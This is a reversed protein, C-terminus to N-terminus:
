WKLILTLTSHWPSNAAGIKQWELCRKKSFLNLLDPTIVRVHTPDNMFDKHRPHPVNIEIRAENECIRYMEKMIAFFVEVDRDLHELTYNLIIESVSGDEFQWPTRELDMLVDSSGFDYKDVNIYGDCKNLGSGLNLRLKQHM